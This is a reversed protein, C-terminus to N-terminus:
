KRKDVFEQGQIKAPCVLEEGETEVFLRPVILNFAPFEVFDFPLQKKIQRVYASRDDTDAIPVIFIAALQEQFVAEVTDFELQIICGIRQGSQELQPLPWDMDFSHELIVDGCKGKVALLM